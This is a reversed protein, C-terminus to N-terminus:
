FIFDLNKPFFTLNTDSVLCTGQFGVCPVVLVLPLQLTPHQPDHPQLHWWSAPAQCLGDLAATSGTGRSGCADRQKPQSSWGGEWCSSWICAHLWATLSALLTGNAIKDFEVNKPLVNGNRHTLPRPFRRNAAAFSWAPAHPFAGLVRVQGPGPGAARVGHESPAM